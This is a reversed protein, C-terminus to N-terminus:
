PLTVPVAVAGVTYGVAVNRVAHIKTHDTARDMGLRPDSPLDLVPSRLVQVPGTAYLWSTGAARTGDPGTGDYGTGAAVFTDVLTRLKAGDRRVHLSTLSGILHRAAHITGLAGTAGGIWEELMGLGVGLSVPTTALQQAAALAPAGTPNGAADKGTWFAAEVSSSEQLALRTRALAQMEAVGLGLPHDAGVGASIGFAPAEVWLREEDLSDTALSFTPPCDIAFSSAAGAIEDLFRVGHRIKADLVAAASYLGFGSPQAAPGSVEVLPENLFTM